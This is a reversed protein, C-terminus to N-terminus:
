HLRSHSARCVRSHVNRVMALNDNRSHPPTIYPYTHYQKAKITENTRLILFTFNCFYFSM